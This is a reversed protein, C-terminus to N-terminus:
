QEALRDAPVKGSDVDDFTWDPQKGAQAEDLLVRGDDTIDVIPAILEPRVAPTAPDLHRRLLDPYLRLVSEMVAQHQRALSCRAEDAVTAVRDAIEDLDTDTATGTCVRELLTSIAVGDHKCPTCQGCSEVALFRSVGAAVAAPDVGDDFVLFGAAGLGSGIAALDEYTAPTDFQAAPILANAVGSLAFSYHRGTARGGGITEIIEALPTGLPFEAVGARATSGSVTCVITGPSGDTGLSRFAAPGDALILAVNALTEVNNALTPPSGAADPQALVTAAPAGPEATVEDVGHRFPPALRPFPPRGDLVELLATEEGFLYESPGAVVSMAVGDAWGAAEIEGIARALRARESEFSSKVAVVVRDAGVALAAILAGELVAHPARRLLLRDKFSGPEGEAGNVVVTAPGYVTGHEVVTRWKAGTPFGAGGRGRLGSAEVEEVVAAAGMTRAAELGRGGGGACYADLSDIPEDPLVRSVPAM